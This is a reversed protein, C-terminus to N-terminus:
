ALTFITGTTDSSNFKVALSEGDALTLASGYDWYAILPDAPSTPTDNYLVVYRFPGVSGGAATITVKTGTMTVTGGTRTGSPTVSVPETYGFQNTIEAVDTKVEHTAVNPAANSLYIKLQDVDTGPTTGLLDHVKNALDGAFVEFKVYTAMEDDESQLWTWWSM